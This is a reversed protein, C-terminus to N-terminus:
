DLGPSGAVIESHHQKGNEDIFRIQITNGSFDLVAFGFLAWSELGRKIKDRYEYMGPSPLPDSEKHTMYVPVGGHGICASYQLNNSPKHTICRHEHGWIWSHILNQGLSDALSDALVTDGDEFLSFLQHHSLLMVNQGDRQADEAMEKVWQPQPEALGGEKWGTDLGLIKWKSNAMSFFSCGAHGSFRPDGLLTQYYGYGGSYMDHNANVSWSTIQDKQNLDVPWYPLFRKKYEKPWGSYYVDGLHIVHQEINDAEGEKLVKKIEAAVKQARPLGSGWDGVILLRATDSIPVTKAPDAVFPHRKKFKRLGMAVLSSVWGIDTVSFKDFVRRGSTTEKEAGIISRNSILEDGDSASRRGGPTKTEVSDSQQEEFYEELASQLNSIVPDRSFFSFDDLEAQAKGRRGASAIEFGPQGSSKEEEKDRARELMAAAEAFDSSDLQEAGEPISRGRRAPRASKLDAVVDELQELVFKRNLIQKIM